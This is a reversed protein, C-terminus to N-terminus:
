EKTPSPQSCSSSMVRRVSSREEVHRHIPRLHPGPPLRDLKHENSLTSGEDKLGGCRDRAAASCSSRPSRNKVVETSFLYDGRYIPCYGPVRVCTCGCSLCSSVRWSGPRPLAPDV